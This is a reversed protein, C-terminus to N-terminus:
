PNRGPESSLPANKGRLHPRARGMREEARGLGQSALKAAQHAANSCAVRTKVVQKRTRHGSTNMKKLEPRAGNQMENGGDLPAIHVTALTCLSNLFHSLHPCLGTRLLAQAHSFAKLLRIFLLVRQESFCKATNTSRATHSRHRQVM